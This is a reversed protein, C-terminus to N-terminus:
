APTGELPQDAPPTVSAMPRWMTDGHEANTARALVFLLASLRNLFQAPLPGIEDPHREMATWMSREARRVITRAQFIMAAGVEGGPLVFGQVKHLNTSFHDIARELREIHGETIRVDTDQGASGPRLVSALDYMDHQVSALTHVVELSGGGVLSLATGIAANAEDCDGYAALRVDYKAIEGFEGLTTRGDDGDRSFHPATM